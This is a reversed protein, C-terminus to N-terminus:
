IHSCPNVQCNEHVMCCMLEITEMKALNHLTNKEQQGWIHFDHAPIDLVAHYFSIVIQIGSGPNPRNTQLLCQNSM